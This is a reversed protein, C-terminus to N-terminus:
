FLMQALSLLGHIDYSQSTLIDVSKQWGLGLLAPVLAPGLPVSSLALVRVSGYHASGRIFDHRALGVRVSGQASGLRSVLRTLCLRTKLGVSDLPM